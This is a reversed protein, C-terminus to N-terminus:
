FAGLSRVVSSLTKGLVWLDTRWSKDLVYQVDYSVTDQFSLLGRGNIQAYGTIGSKVQFKLHQWPEYSPVMEPIEPRPGVLAMDGTLVNLLNPLEDLSTKRLFRGVRTVRPDNPTKFYLTQLEEATYTYDYLEPYLEQANQYMTRFKYFVFPRGLTDHQRREHRAHGHRKGEQRPSHKGQRRNETLRIQRFLAPGPSDLRILLAIVLMLPATLLFLCAALLWDVIAPLGQPQRPRRLAALAQKKIRAREHQSIRCAQETQTAAAAPTTLPRPSSQSQRSRPEKM